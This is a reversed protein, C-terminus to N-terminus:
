LQRKKLSFQAKDGYFQMLDYEKVKEDLVEISIKYHVVGEFDAQGYMFGVLGFISFLALCLIKKLM